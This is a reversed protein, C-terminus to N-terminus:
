LYGFGPTAPSLNPRESMSAIVIRDSGAGSLRIQAIMVVHLLEVSNRLVRLNHAPFRTNPSHTYSDTHNDLRKCCAPGDLLQQGIKRAQFLLINSLRESKGSTQNLSM